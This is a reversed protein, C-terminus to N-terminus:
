LDIASLLAGSLVFGHDDRSRGQSKRPGLVDEVIAVNAANQPTLLEDCRDRRFEPLGHEVFVDSAQHFAVVTVRPELCEGIDRVDNLQRAASASEIELM